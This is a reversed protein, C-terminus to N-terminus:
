GRYEALIVGYGARAVPELLPPRGTANGANGHFFVVTPKGPEGIAEVFALDLGDATRLIAPAFGQYGLSAPDALRRGDSRFMFQEQWAWLAGVCTAWALAAALAAWVVVLM